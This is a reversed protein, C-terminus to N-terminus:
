VEGEERRTVRLEATIRVRVRITGGLSVTRGEDPFNLWAFEGFFERALRDRARAADIPRDFSSTHHHKGRHCVAGCWKDGRPYIGTFGSRNARPRSNYRNQALTCVRLQKRRNDLTHSKKHDVVMGPPPRMIERHMYVMCDREKRCAYYNKGKRLACWKYRSLWELDIRDVLAVKNQTLPILATQDDPPDPLEQPRCATVSAPKAEFRSCGDDHAVQTPEGLAEPRNVCVLTGPQANRLMLAFRCNACCREDM